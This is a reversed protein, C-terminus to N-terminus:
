YAKQIIAITVAQSLDAPRFSPLCNFIKEKKEICFCSTAGRRQADTAQYMNPNSNIEASNIGGVISRNYNLEFPFSAAPLPPAWVIGAIGLVTMMM